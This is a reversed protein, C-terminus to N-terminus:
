LFSVGNQEVAEEGALKDHNRRVGHSKQPVGLGLSFHTHLGVWSDTISARRLVVTARGPREFRDGQEDIGTSDWGTIAVALLRDPSVVVQM